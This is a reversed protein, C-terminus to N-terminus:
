AFLCVAACACFLCMFIVDNREGPSTPCLHGWALTDRLIDVSQEGTVVRRERGKNGRNDDICITDGQEADGDSLSELVVDM